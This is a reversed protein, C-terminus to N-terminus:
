RREDAILERPLDQRLKTLGEHVSRRAAEPSCDLAFAIDSYDLDVVFRLAVASRQKGPLDRVRDWIPGPGELDPTFAREPGEAVPEPRRQRARHEDIAKRSAITLMWARINSDAPLDPYGRLAAIITEQFCDDARDRGVSAVLLRWIDDRHSELAVQFPPLTM